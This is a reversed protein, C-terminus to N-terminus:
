PFGICFFFMYSSVDSSNSVATHKTSPLKAKSEAFWENNKKSIIKSTFPEVKASIQARM